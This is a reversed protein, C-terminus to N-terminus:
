LPTATSSDLHRVTAQVPWRGPVLAVAEAPTRADIVILDAVQGSRALPRTRRDDQQREHRGVRDL